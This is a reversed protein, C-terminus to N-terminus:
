SQRDGDREAREQEDLLMDIVSTTYRRDERLADIYAGRTRLSPDREYRHQATDEKADAADVLSWTAECDPPPARGERARDISEMLAAVRKDNGGALLERIVAALLRPALRLLKEAYQPTLGLRLAVTACIPDRSGNGWRPKTPLAPHTGANGVPTQDLLIRATM